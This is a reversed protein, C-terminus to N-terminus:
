RRGAGLEPKCCVRHDMGKFKVEYQFTKKLKQRGLIDEIKRKDGNKGTVETDMMKQDEETVIRTAKMLTERDHGDQYRWQSTRLDLTLLAVIIQM